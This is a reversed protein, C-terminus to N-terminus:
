RTWTSRSACAGASCRSRRPPTTGVDTSAGTLWWRSAVAPQDSCRPWPWPPGAVAWSPPDRGVGGFLQGLVLVVSAYVAGLLATLLGYVLTRHVLRDLDYLRYRMVAIGVAVPFLLAATYSVVLFLPRPLLSSCLEAVVLIAAAVGAV